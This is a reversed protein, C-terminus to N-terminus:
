RREPLPKSCLGFLKLAEKGSSADYIEVEASIEDSRVMHRILDAIIRRMVKDDEVIFFLLEENM